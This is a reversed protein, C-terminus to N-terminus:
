NNKEEEDEHGGNADKAIISLGGNEDIHVKEDESAYLIKLVNETLENTLGANAQMLMEIDRLKGFYFDREKELTDMNLKMESLESQLAGADGSKVGAKAGGVASKSAAGAKPGAASTSGGVTKVATKPQLKPAAHPQSGGAAVKGGGLIYFLDQGKRRGVADYPEGNYNIDYYRKM